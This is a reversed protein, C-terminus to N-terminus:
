RKNAVRKMAQKSMNAMNLKRERKATKTNIDNINEEKAAKGTVKNTFMYVYGHCKCLYDIKGWTGNGADQNARNVTIVKRMSDITICKKKLITRIVSAEDYNKNAM